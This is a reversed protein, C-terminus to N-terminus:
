LHARKKKKVEEHAVCVCVDLFLKKFKKVMVRIFQTCSIILLVSARLFCFSNLDFYRGKGCTAGVDFTQSRRKLRALSM